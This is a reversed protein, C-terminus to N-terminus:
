KEYHITIIAAIIALVAADNIINLDLGDKYRSFRKNQKWEILSIIWGLVYFVTVIIYVVIM